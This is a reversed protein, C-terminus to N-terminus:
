YVLKATKIHIPRTTLVGAEYKPYWPNFDRDRRGPVMLSNKKTSKRLGEVRIGPYHRLVLGCGSGALDKVIWWWESIMRGDASFLRTVSFADYFLTDLLRVTSVVM